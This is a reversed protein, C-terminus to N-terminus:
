ASTTNCNIISSVVQKERVKVEVAYNLSMIQLHKKCMVFQKMGVNNVVANNKFHFSREQLNAFNGKVIM